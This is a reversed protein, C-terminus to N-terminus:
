YRTGATVYILPESSSRQFFFPTPYGGDRWVMGTGGGRLTFKQMPTCAHDGITALSSAQQPLNGLSIYTAEVHGM